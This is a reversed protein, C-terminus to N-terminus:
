LPERRRVTEDPDHKSEIKAGFGLVVLDRTVLTAGDVATLQGILTLCRQYSALVEENRESQAHLAAIDKNAKDFAPHSKYTGDSWSISKEWPGTDTPVVLLTGGHSHSRMARAVHILPVYRRTYWDFDSSETSGALSLKVIEFMGQDVFGANYPSLLAIFYDSGGTGTIITGPQIVAVRLCPGSRQSRWSEFGWISLRNNEDPWVGIAGDKPIAASLKALQRAGFPIFDSLVYPSDVLDYDCYVVEFNHQRGEVRELSAWFSEVVLSRVHDLVHAKSSFYKKLEAPLEEEEQLEDAGWESPLASLALEYREFVRAVFEPNIGFIM